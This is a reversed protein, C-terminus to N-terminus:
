GQVSFTIELEVTAGLPLSPVGVAARAHVGSEGFIAQALESAGNAVLHQDTFEPTGAVFAGLRIVGSIDDLDCVLGAAALGNLFCRAMSSRAEDIDREPSMPGTMMLQGDQLPLQGSIFVLEGARRAPTYAAVPSAVKPLVLGMEALKGLVRASM